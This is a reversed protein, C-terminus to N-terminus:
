NITILVFIFSLIHFFFIFLAQLKKFKIKNYFFIRLLIKRKTAKDLKDAQSSSATASESLLSLNAAKDKGDNCDNSDNAATNYKFNNEAGTSPM